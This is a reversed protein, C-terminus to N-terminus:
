SSLNITKNFQIPKSSDLLGFIRSLVNIAAVDKAEQITQGFGSGLFQKDSYMAVHYAVELTNQGAQAILRPEAPSRNQKRLVDNLLEVPRAPNWIETLDKEALTVILFDRVFTAAHNADVSKALAAVLALFTDALTKQAMAETLIIDKTGIHFAAKALIEESLLYDHLLIIVDESAHPLVQVLYNQVIESTLKEGDRILEANDQVALVPDEIGM